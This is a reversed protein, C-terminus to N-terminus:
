WADTEPAQATPSILVTTVPIPPPAMATWYNRRLPHIRHGAEHRRASQDEAATQRSPRDHSTDEVEDLLSPIRPDILDGLLHLLHQSSVLADFM